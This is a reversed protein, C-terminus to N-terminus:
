RQRKLIFIRGRTIAYWIFSVGAVSPAIVTSIHSTWGEGGWDYFTGGLGAIFLLLAVMQQTILANLRDARKLAAQQALSDTDHAGLLFGCHECSAAKDSVKKGCGPCSIIAM